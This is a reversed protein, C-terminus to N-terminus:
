GRAGDAPCPQENAGVRPQADRMPVDSGVYVFVPVRTMALTRSVVHGLAAAGDVSPRRGLVLLPSRTGRPATTEVLQEAVEGTEIRVRVPAPAGLASLKGTLETTAAVIRAHTATEAESTRIPVVAPQPTVHMVELTTRLLTALPAAARAAAISYDACKTAAIVPGCGALGVDSPPQWDAPVAVVSTTAHRIVQETTSGFVLRRPGTMGHTGVVILDAGLEGAAACIVAAAAGTSVHTRIAVAPVASEVFRALERRSEDSLEIGRTHAAASLLPDDVYLVVLEARCTVALRTAFILATRSSPSFDVACLVREPIM